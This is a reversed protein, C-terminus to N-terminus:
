QVPTITVRIVGATDPYSFGDAVLQVPGNEDAGTNPGAQRPAQDPGFGPAQNIETGADWLMVQSTVDGAVPTGDANFLAIGAGDPGYFLDNSQVFMTAFSLHNGPTAAVTFEYARGPLLPGPESTGVPTNFASASIDTQATLAEVLAAPNGDEAVAELGLGRDPQGATFLPGANTHITWVGPAFPSTVGTLGAISAALDAPNGDEALAELGLGGDPQGEVFLSSDEGHVAWVGPAFPTPHASGDSATLIPGDTINEIRLVFSNAAPSDLTVRVMENVAPTTGFEDAVVRVANNPDAAGTNPGAQQLPQDVGLGPEQNVETGADWLLIQDTIDDTVPLGDENFLVIGDQNPGIFWDNSQVVMSAFSLRDGPAANFTAEYTSGPLLPGPETSGVPTNFVGSSKFPFDSVNEITVTFNTKGAMADMADMSEMSNKDEMAMEGMAMANEEGPICLKWGVEIIDPNTISAYSEDKQAAANTAELIVPYAQTNGLFKDAVKSLWDDAQVSYDQRCVEMEHLPAAFASTAATALLTVSLLASTIRLM